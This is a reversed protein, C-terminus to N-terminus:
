FTIIKSLTRSKLCHNEGRDLNYKARALFCELRYPTEFFYGRTFFCPSLVISSLSDKLEYSSLGYLYKLALATRFKQQGVASPGKNDRLLASTM